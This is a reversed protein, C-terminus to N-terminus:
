YKIIKIELGHKTALDIMHKSGKSQGDWFVVCADGYKAMEENRIYGARKGYESWNAPFKKIQHNHEKAYKEGLTDAGKAEGSVIEIDTKNILLKNLKTNLLEYDNFGRSGAVIVKFV